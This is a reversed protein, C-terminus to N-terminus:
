WMKKVRITFKLVFETNKFVFNLNGHSINLILHSLRIRNTMSVPPGRLERVKYRRIQNNATWSTYWVKLYASKGKSIQPNKILNSM